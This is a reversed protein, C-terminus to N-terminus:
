RAHSYICPVYVGGSTCNLIYRQHLKIVKHTTHVQMDPSLKQLRSPDKNNHKCSLKQSQISILEEKKKKNIQCQHEPGVRM